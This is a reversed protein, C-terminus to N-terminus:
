RALEVLKYGVQLEIETLQNLQMQLHEGRGLNLIHSKISVVAEYLARVGHFNGAKLIGSTDVEEFAEGARTLEADNGMSIYTEVLDSYLGFDPFTFDQNRESLNELISPVDALEELSLETLVGILGSAERAPTNAPIQPVGYTALKTLLFDMPSQSLGLDSAYEDMQDDTM